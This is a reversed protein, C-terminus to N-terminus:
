VRLNYLLLDSGPLVYRLESEPIETLASFSSQTAPSTQTARMFSQQVMTVDSVRLANSEIPGEHGDEQDTNHATSDNKEFMWQERALMLVLDNFELPISHFVDEACARLQTVISKSDNDLNNLDGRAMGLINMFKLRSLSCLLEQVSDTRVKEFNPTTKGQM